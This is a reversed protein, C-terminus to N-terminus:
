APKWETVQVMQTDNAHLVLMKRVRDQWLLGFRELEATSAQGGVAKPMLTKMEDAWPVISADLQVQVARGTDKRQLGLVAQIP